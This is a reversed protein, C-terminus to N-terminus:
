KKECKKSIYKIVIERKELPPFSYTKKHFISWEYDFELQSKDPFNFYVSFYEPNDKYYDESTTIYFEFCHDKEQYLKSYHEIFLLLNQINKKTITKSIIENKIIFYGEKNKYEEEFLRFLGRQQELEEFVKTNVINSEPKNDKLKAVPGKGMSFGIFLLLIFAVVITAVFWSIASGIQGKKTKM